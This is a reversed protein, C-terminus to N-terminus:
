GKGGDAREFITDYVQEYGDIMTAVSFRDEVHQRCRRRDIEGIRGVAASAEQADRVLFGTKGDAIVERCSGLDM